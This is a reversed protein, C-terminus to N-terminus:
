LAMAGKKLTATRSNAGYTQVWLCGWRVVAGVWRMVGGHLCVSDACTILM